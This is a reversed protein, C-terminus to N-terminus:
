RRMEFPKLLRALEPLFLSSCFWLQVRCGSAPSYTAAKLGLYPFKFVAALALTWIVALYCEEHNGVTKHGNQTIQTVNGRPGLVWM